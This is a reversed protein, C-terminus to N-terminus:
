ALQGRLRDAHSREVAEKVRAVLGSRDESKRVYGFAGCNRAVAAGDEAPLRSHFLVAVGDVAGFGNLVELIKEGRIQPIEMELVLVDPKEEHLAEFLLFPTRLISVHFGASELATRASDLAVDDFDLLLIKGQAM